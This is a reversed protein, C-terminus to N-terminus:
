EGHHDRSVIFRPLDFLSHGGDTVRVVQALPERDVDDRIVAVVIGGGHGSASARVDKLSEVSAFAPLALRKVPTEAHVAGYELVVVSDGDDVGVGGDRWTEERGHRLRQRLGTHM